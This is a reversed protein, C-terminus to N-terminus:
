YMSRGGRVKGHKGAPRKDPDFEKEMDFDYNKNKAKAHARKGGILNLRYIVHLMAFSTISNYETDSRMMANISRSYNSQRNLIDYLQLSVTLPRGSLFSQSIQANWILENTNMAADNYGRRSNQSVNTAIRTGWPLTVNTSAGYSFRWTDLNSSSQLLNRTHTYNLNCNVNFEFWDNRYGGELRESYTTTRTTNKQSDSSRNLALYSVYHNYRLSSYTSVNWFTASDIATNFLFAGMANWDGNINEPTTTRGGTVADYKVMNSISNSTTNLNLHAMITRQRAQIYNSYVMRLTNTFSPKLGPNGKRINLPNSNDTIDLMDTISPQASTGRYKLQFQHTKSFRYRFDVTPAINVIHRTTDAQVNQYDQIFHSQQPMVSLGASLNYKTRIMRVQLRIDHIYNKYESFRSLSVDEYYAYPNELRSLYDEWGGYSPTLGDFFDEGLNSFDYTTRDSKSYKYQFKYSLQLFTAYFIPESWSAQLSYNWNKGPTVNFRNTQYTSDAGAANRVLYLHVNTTSLSKSDSEGYGITARLNFSRGKRNLIKNYQLEGDLSKNYGHSIASGHRANVMLSDAALQATSADDLPDSVYLYPDDKFSASQSVSYSDSSSFNVSPRFIIDTMSDPEWELRMNANWRNGRSMNDKRSNSFSTTTSVFNESATSTKADADNHNWRVSGDFKFAKRNDYNFNAGAMKSANLGQRGGGFRGSGGGGPFGMDNVNNGNGLVMVKMKDTFKAGMLRAGYRGDTGIGIDNNTMVGKKMNPKIGFDLVTQEEGDDIGTVEELDSRKDYAKIKEIISTPLNKLATKTDGTFFEKGDVLIKTVEKGNITITGDDDVQAGPLKKVLEEVVSGEPVKYADANYIFTDEKLQVRALQATVEAGKLMIADPELMIIGASMAEGGAVSIDHYSTKFGISTVQIIYRHNKPASLRFLGTASSVAGCVFSSDPRLLKVTAQTAAQGTEKDVIKGTIETTQASAFIAFTCLLIVLAQIRKKISTGSRNKTM